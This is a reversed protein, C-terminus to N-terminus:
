AHHKIVSFEGNPELRLFKVQELKEIGHERMAEALETRTIHERRLNRTVVRGNRVLILPPPDTLHAIAPVYYGGVDLVYNVECANLLQYLQWDLSEVRPAFGASIGRRVLWRRALGKLEQKM